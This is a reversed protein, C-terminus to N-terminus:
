GVGALGTSCGEEERDWAPAAARYGGRAPRGPRAVPAILTVLVVDLVLGVQLAPWALPCVACVCVCTPVTRSQTTCLRPQLQGRTRQRGAAALVAAHSAHRGAPAHLVAGTRVLLDSLYFEFESWFEDGRKRLEAM